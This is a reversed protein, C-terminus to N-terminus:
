LPEGQGRNTRSADKAVRVADDLTAPVSQALPDGDEAMLAAVEAHHKRILELYLGLADTSWLVARMSPKHREAHVRAWARVKVASEPTLGLVTAKSDILRMTVRRQDDLAVCAVPVDGEIWVVSFPYATVISCDGHLATMVDLSPRFFIGVRRDQMDSEFSRVVARREAMHGELLALIPPPPRSEPM